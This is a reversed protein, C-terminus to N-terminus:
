CYQFWVTIDFYTDTKNNCTTLHDCRHQKTFTKTQPPWFAM